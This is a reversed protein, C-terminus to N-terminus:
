RCAAVITGGVGIFWVASRGEFVELQFLMDENWFTFVVLVGVLSGVIFSVFRNPSFLFISIKKKGRLSLLLTFPSVLFTVIRMKMVPKLDRRSYM